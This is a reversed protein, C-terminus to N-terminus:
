KKDMLRTANISNEWEQNRKEKFKKADETTPVDQPGYDQDLSESMSKLRLLMKEKFLDVKESVDNVDGTKSDYNIKNAESWSETAVGAKLTNLTAVGKFGDVSAVASMASILKMSMGKTSQSVKGSLAAVKQNIAIVDEILKIDNIDSDLKSASVLNNITSDLDSILNQTVSNPTDKGQEAARAMNNKILTRLVQEMLIDIIKKPDKKKKRLSKGRTKGFKKFIRAIYLALTDNDIQGKEVEKALALLVQAIEDTVVKALQENEIKGSEIEKALKALEEKLNSNNSTPQNNQNPLAKDTM